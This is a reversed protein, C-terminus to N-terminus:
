HTSVMGLYAQRMAQINPMFFSAVSIEDIIRDIFKLKNDPDLPTGWEVALRSQLQEAHELTMGISPLVDAEALLMAERALDPEVLLRGLQLPLGSAFRTVPGGAAHSAWCARAFPVGVSPDTALVLAQIRDCEDDDVGAALLYPQAEQVARRELRFPLETARSGDHYFDHILAATVVRTSRSRNLHVLRSLYLASLMVELFHQGNHYGNAVGAGVGRDIDRAIARGALVRPDTEPVGISRSALTHAHEMRDSRGAFSAFYAVLEAGVHPADLSKVVAFPPRNLM